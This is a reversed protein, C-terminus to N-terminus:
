VLDHLDHASMYRYLTRLSVGLRQAAQDRDGQARELADIIERRTAKPRRGRRSPPRPLTTDPVMHADPSPTAPPPPALMAFDTPHLVDGQAMVCAASLANELQRVNGPWPLGSIFVGAEPSLGLPRGAVKPAIRQLLTHAILPIDERRQRLAPLEIVFGALRYYLDERFTQAAVMARLDQHTACVIRVDIPQTQAAGVPRVRREQLVRLMKAQMELPMEAVEDLFITGGNASSLIGERAMHAGTFAGKVHGFMESEFLTASIAGCNFAVFPGGSRPSAEHIARAVLEKGTGSEGHVVVPIDSTAVRDAHALAREMVTSVFAIDKFRRQLGADAQRRQVEQAMHELRQGMHELRLDREDLLAQLERQADRLRAREARLAELQRARTIALALQHGFAEMMRPVEGGFVGPHVRHDLYLAGLVEHADRVPVCLVSTLDLDVVSLAVNFRRDERANLTVVTRGTQAAEQAITLSVNLHPQAIPSADVDRSAAISFSLPSAQQSPDRLLLFGREAGSLSMAIELATPWLSPLDQTKLIVENLSLMRYFREMDSSGPARQARAQTAPAPEAVPQAEWSPLSAFFDQRLERTLGMAVANRASRALDVIEERLQALEERELYGILHPSQQLILKHDGAKQALELHRRFLEIGGMRGVSSGDLWQVRASLIGHTNRLDDLDRAEILARAERLAHHARAQAGQDVFVEARQLVLEARLKDSMGDERTLCTDYFRLAGASDGRKHLIYGEFALTAVHIHAMGHDQALARAREILASAEEFRGLVMDINAQNVLLLAQTSARGSDRAMRTGRAYYERALGLRGQRHYSTGVNLLYVPLEARM